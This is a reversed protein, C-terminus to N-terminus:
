PVQIYRTSLLLPKTTVTTPTTSQRIAQVREPLPQIGDPGVQYGLFELSTQGLVCKSRQVVLGNESLADFVVQLDKLHQTLNESAVLIDDIYAFVNEMGALVRDILKQFSQASNKLGM